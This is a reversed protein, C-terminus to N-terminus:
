ARLWYNGSAINAPLRIQGNTQQSAAYLLVLSIVSDKENVLDVFLFKSRSNVKQSLANLLFGKLWITEGTKYISKDTVLYAQPKDQSKIATMFKASFFDLNQQLDQANASISFLLFLYIFLRKANTSLM